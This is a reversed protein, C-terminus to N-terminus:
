LSRDALLTCPVESHRVDYNNILVSLAGVVAKLPLFMDSCANAIEVTVRAAGYALKWRSDKSTGPENAAVGVARSPKASPSPILLVTTNSPYVLAM